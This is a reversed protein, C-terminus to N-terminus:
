FHFIRSSSLKSLISLSQSIQSEQNSSLCDILIPIGNEQLTNQNEKSNSISSLSKLNFAKNENESIKKLLNFIQYGQKKPIFQHDKSPREMLDLSDCSKSGNSNNKNPLIRINENLSQTIQSKNKTYSGLHNHNSQLDEGSMLYKKLDIKDPMACTEPAFSLPRSRNINRSSFVAELLEEKESEELFPSSSKCFSDSENEVNENIIIIEDEERGDRDSDDKESEGKSKEDFLFSTSLHFKRSSFPSIESGDILNYQNSGDIHNSHNSGDILNSHNSGNILNSHNSGDILNSNDSGDIHNSHNSGNFPNSHNKEFSKSQLKNFEQAQKIQTREITECSSNVIQSITM